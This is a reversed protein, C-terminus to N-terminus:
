SFFYSSHNIIEEKGLHQRTEWYCITVQEVMKCKICMFFLEINSRFSPNFGNIMWVFGFGLAGSFSYCRAERKGHTLRIDREVNEPEHMVILGRCEISLLFAIYWMQDQSANSTGHPELITRRLVKRRPFNRRPVNRWLSVEGYPFNATPCKATRSRRRPVIRRIKRRASM